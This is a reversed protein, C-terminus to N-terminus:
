SLLFFQITGSISCPSITASTDTVMWSLYLVDGSQMKRRTNTKGKNCTTSVLPGSFFPTGPVQPFSTSVDNVTDWRIESATDSVTQLLANNNIAPLPGTSPSFVCASNWIVNTMLRFFNTAGHFGVDPINWGQGAPVTLNLTKSHVSSGCVIVREVPEYLDFGQTVPNNMVGNNEGDKVIVLVWYIYQPSGDFTNPAGQLSLDWNFGTMTVPFTVSFMLVNRQAQPGGPTRTSLVTAIRKYTNPKPQFIPMEEDEESSDDLDSESRRRKSM